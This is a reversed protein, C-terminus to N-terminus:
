RRAVTLLYEAPANLTGDTATNFQEFTAIVDARAADWAGAPELAAKAVVIPGLVRELYDVWAAPSEAENFTTRREFRLDAM